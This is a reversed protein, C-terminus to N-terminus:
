DTTGGVVAEGDGRRSRAGSRGVRRRRSPPKLHSLSGRDNLHLVFPRLATYRVVTVSAPDVVIRQFGDLHLGLADAVISKIVDGHSVALWTVDTGSLEGLATDRERVAAVSRNQMERMTEGGPFRVGSPHAQVAKWLTTRSLAGLAKGTWEGYDCELLRDDLELQTGPRAAVLADVTQVCRELPSSVMAALPLDKLRDVLGLAQERGRDDLDVGPTRGALLNGANATSRGHRVLLVTPM